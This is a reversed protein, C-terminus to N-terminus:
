LYRDHGTRREATRQSLCRGSRDAAPLRGPHGPHDARGGPIGAAFLAQQFVQAPAFAMPELVLEAGAVGDPATVTLWRFPGMPIDACKEFGLVETYFALAQEQDAVLLSMFKIQM